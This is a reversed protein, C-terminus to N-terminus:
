LLISKAPLHEGIPPEITKGYGLTNEKMLEKNLRIASKKKYSYQKEPSKLSL